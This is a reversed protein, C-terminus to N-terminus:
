RAATQPSGLPYFVQGGIYWLKGNFITLSAYVRGLSKGTVVVTGPTSMETFVGTTSSFTRGGSVALM